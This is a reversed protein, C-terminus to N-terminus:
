FKAALEATVHVARTLADTVVSFASPAEVDGRAAALDLTTLHACAAYNVLDTPSLRIDNNVLKM